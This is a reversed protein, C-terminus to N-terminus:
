MLKRTLVVMLFTPPFAQIWPAVTNKYSVITALNLVYFVVFLVGGILIERIFSRWQEKTM